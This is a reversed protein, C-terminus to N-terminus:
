QKSKGLTVRLIGSLDAVSRVSDFNASKLLQAVKEAQEYGHEFM